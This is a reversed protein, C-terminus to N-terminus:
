SEIRHHLTIVLQQRSGIYGGRVRHDGVIVENPLKARAEPGQVAIIARSATVDTGGIADVVRETNSANPMVDFGFDANKISLVCRSRFCADVNFGAVARPRPIGDSDALVDDGCCPFRQEVADLVSKM